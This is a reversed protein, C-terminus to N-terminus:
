YRGESCLTFGVMGCMHNAGEKSTFVGIRQFSPALLADCTFMLLSLYVVLILNVEKGYGDVGNFVRPLAPFILAPNKGLNYIYIYLDRVVLNKAFDGFNHPALGWIEKM